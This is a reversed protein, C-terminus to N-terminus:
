TRCRKPALPGRNVFIEVIEIKACFGNIGSICAHYRGRAHLIRFFLVNIFHASQYGRENAVLILIIRRDDREPNSKERAIICQQIYCLGSRCAHYRGRVHLIRLFSVNVFHASQYARENAM